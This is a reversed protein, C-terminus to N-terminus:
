RRQRGAVGFDWRGAKDGRQCVDRVISQNYRFGIDSVRRDSVQELIQIDLISSIALVTKSTKVGPIVGFSSRRATSDACGFAEFFLDSTGCKERHQRDGVLRGIGCM